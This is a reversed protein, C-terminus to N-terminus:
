GRERTRSLPQPSPPEASSSLADIRELVAPLEQLVQHNWFRLVRYGHAALWADRGTTMPTTPMNDATSKSSASPTGSQRLRRHVSRHTKAAQVEPGSTPARAPPVVTDTEADTMTKRLTKAHQLLRPNKMQVRERGEAVRERPRSLPHERRAHPHNMESSGTPSRCAHRRGPRTTNEPRCRETDPKPRGRERGEAVRERLRSFPIRPATASGVGPRFLIQRMM